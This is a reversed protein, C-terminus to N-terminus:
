VEDDPASDRYLKKLGRYLRAVEAALEPEIGKLPGHAHSLSAYARYIHDRAMRRGENRMLDDYRTQDTPLFLSCVDPCPQYNRSDRSLACSSLVKKTSGDEMPMVFIHNLESHGCGRCVDPKDVQALILAHGYAM